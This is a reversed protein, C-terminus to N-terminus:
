DTDDAAFGVNERASTVFERLATAADSIDTQPVDLGVLKARREQIKLIVDAHRPLSRNPWHSLMMDDLRMLELQRIEDVKEFCSEQLHAIGASVLNYVKGYALGLEDSIEKFSRGEIRMELARYQEHLRNAEAKQAGIDKVAMHETGGAVLIRRFIDDRLYNNEGRENGRSM